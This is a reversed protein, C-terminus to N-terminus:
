VDSFTMLVPVMRFSMHQKEGEITVIASDQTKQSM